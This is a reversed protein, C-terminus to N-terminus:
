VFLCKKGCLSPKPLTRRVLLHLWASGRPMNVNQIVLDSEICAVRERYRYSMKNENPQRGNSLLM